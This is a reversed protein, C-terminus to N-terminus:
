YHGIADHVGNLLGEAAWLAHDRARESIESGGERVAQIIGLAQVITRDILEHKNGDIVIESAM